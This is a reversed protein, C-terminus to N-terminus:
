ALGGLVISTLLFLAIVALLATVAYLGIGARLNIGTKNTTELKDEGSDIIVLANTLIFIIEIIYFGIIIQLLYPPIMKTMDFINLIANLNGVGAITEAGGAQALNLKSLIGTIMAALGIVVGSLLPALFTMNSKMDSIIEALMDRLRDTIKNINKVYESISILSLAAINLGKKASEVLIRMSTAILESPYYAIAGRKEDFIAGEVSMGMQLVNYNVRKFFDETKLGKTSEAVKSFALEPPVGNGIRNGLQFLSNNFEAELQKTKQREKILEKTRDKFAISFFLAVGLIFFVSLILAGVGFPGTLKGNVDRFGFFPEDGFFTLGLESFTYDNKLGLAPALPSQFFLPLLGIILFPICILFAKAYHKKDKYVPYLPNREILETEGYGGPRLFLVKDTLYFVFFPIILDFLILVHYWKLFDGVMASALPLLALGLTPLVVGLMYVNTLPSRVEHTFRLMKDYVGDLVVQLAKELTVIRKGDDPEFLSSEILHFSEIFETSYDRWTDLYNDLSEKITSFKGLEVNYFVKKLDLALPYQLHQSAFSIARELNPTHRMYVVIYLIAPVMQSSAKLRWKNALRAPYGNIFYFLFLGAFMVLIFFFIPFNELGGSFLSIAVSVLLGVIFVSFFSVISLTIPQWPELDLHAIELSRQIKAQDKQAIKLKVINGLSKCWKEYRTLEPAMEEKFTSYSQSYNIKEIGSATKISQEIRAAHKKLIEDINPKENPM